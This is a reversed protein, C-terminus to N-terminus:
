GRNLLRDAVQKVRRAPKGDGDAIQVVTEGGFHVNTHRPPHLDKGAAALSRGLRYNQGVALRANLVVEVPGPGAKGARYNGTAERPWECRAGAVHLNKEGGAVLLRRVTQRLRRGFLVVEKGAAEACGFGAVQIYDFQRIASQGGDPRRLQRRNRAGPDAVLGARAQQGVGDSALPPAGLDTRAGEVIGPDGVAHGAVALQHVHLILAAVPAM